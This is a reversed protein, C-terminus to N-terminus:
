MEEEQYSYEDTYGFYYDIEKDEYSNFHEKLYEKMEEISTNMAKELDAKLEALRQEDKVSQFNVDKIDNDYFKLVEFNNYQKQLCRVEKIKQYEEETKFVDWPCDGKAIIGCCLYAYNQCWSCGTHCIPDYVNGCVIDVNSLMNEKSM